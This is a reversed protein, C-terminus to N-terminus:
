RRPGETKAHQAVTELDKDGRGSLSVLIELARDSQRALRLAEWVAHASELAPLIGEARALERFAQLAEADGCGTYKVRGTAKLQAHEPGVGPYDLGASISHSERIQGEATQLVMTYAGHLVGPRGRLLTAGHRSGDLGEGAPEVGILRVREDPIFDTFIGLANSGGGVCAIVVDPLRSTESLFQARAERGIVRQFERVM